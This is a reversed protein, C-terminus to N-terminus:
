AWDTLGAKLAYLLLQRNDDVQLKKMLRARHTAVTKESIDLDRAIEKPRAGRVLRLMIDRERPSLEQHLPQADDSEAPANADIYRAGRAGVYRRGSVAANIAARLEDIGSEKAVFARAGADVCRSAADIANTFVIVPVQSRRGRLASMVEFGTGDPFTLDLLIADFERADVERLVDSATAAEAAVRMDTADRLLHRIGNRVVPHDDAVLLRIM